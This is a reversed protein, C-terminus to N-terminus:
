RVINKIARAKQNQTHTYGHGGCVQDGRDDRYRRQSMEADVQQRRM